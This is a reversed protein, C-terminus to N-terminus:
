LRLRMDLMHVRTTCLSRPAWCAWCPSCQELTSPRRASIIRRRWIAPSSPLVSVALYGASENVGMALGRQKPGVLDIKMIVTTSWCLGQNIGLLISRELGVM